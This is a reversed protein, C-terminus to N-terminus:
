VSVRCLFVKAAEFEAVEFGFGLAVEQKRDRPVLRLSHRRAFSLFQTLVM